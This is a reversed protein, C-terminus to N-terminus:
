LNRMLKEININTDKGANQWEELYYLQMDDILDFVSYSQDILTTGSLFVTERNYGGFGNQASYDIKFFASADSGRAVIENIQLSQPNKLQSKLFTVVDIAMKDYGTLIDAVEINIEQESYNGAKDVASVKVIYKGMKQTDVNNELIEFKCEGDVSDKAVINNIFDYEEKFQLQNSGNYSIEPPTTDVVNIKITYPYEKNNSLINYTIEYEGVIHTDLNSEMIEIKEVTDVVEIYDNPKAVKGGEIEYVVQEVKPSSSCGLFCM